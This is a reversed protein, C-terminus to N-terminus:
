EGDEDNLVIHRISEFELWKKLESIDINESDHPWKHCHGKNVSASTMFYVWMYRHKCKGKTM